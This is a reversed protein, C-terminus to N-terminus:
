RTVTEWGDIYLPVSQKIFLPLYVLWSKRVCLRSIEDHNTSNSQKYGFIGLFRGFNERLCDLRKRLHESSKQIGIGPYGKGLVVEEVIFIKWINTLLQWVHSCCGLNKLLAHSIPRYAHTVMLDLNEIWLPSVWAWPMPTPLDQLPSYYKVLLFFYLFVEMAVHFSKEKIWRM